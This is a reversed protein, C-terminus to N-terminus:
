KRRKKEVQASLGSFIETLGPNARGSYGTVTIKTATPNSLTTAHKEETDTVAGGVGRLASADGKLHLGQSVTIM